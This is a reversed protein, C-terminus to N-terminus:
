LNQLTSYGHSSAHACKGRHPGFIFPSTYDQLSELLLGGGSQQVCWEGSIDAAGALM